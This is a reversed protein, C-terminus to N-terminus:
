ADDMWRMGVYLGEDDDCFQGAQSNESFILILLYKIINNM